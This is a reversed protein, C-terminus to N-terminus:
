LKWTPNEVINKIDIIIKDDSSMRSYDNSTYAKFQKHSVTVIIADYKKNSKLPDTIIKYRNNMQKTDILPDYVDVNAGFEELESIIDAVRTNRIDPCDEKFTLGLILINADKVVKGVKTMEKITKDSIYKSMGNNIQRAALILNPKYGIEEAKFMLYYPDVGICHGGVLGPFFKTFNWKTAAAKIVENTDIELQDFIIALENILAINVDRQTNEIAKSAEAVEISPALYTGALIIEKYLLDVQKAIEPTSGSTVKLIKTLTREKDGPSIREPSYGCFFDKNFILGSSKALEPVCVDRTVGPYVTSEYIVIDNKKLVSGVAVSANILPRLDPRNAKDIPTPVTIIYINCNKVDKINSTYIINSKVSDLLKNEVELTKDIGAKLDKIRTEAIDFGVVRFKKAFAVALPLGV